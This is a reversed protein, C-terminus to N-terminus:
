HGQMKPSLSNKSLCGRRQRGQLLPLILDSRWDIFDTKFKKEKQSFLIRDESACFWQAMCEEILLFVGFKHFNYESGERYCWCEHFTWCKHFEKTQSKPIEEGGGAGGSLLREGRKPGTRPQLGLATSGLRGKHTVRSLQTPSPWGPWAEPAWSPRPLALSFRIQSSCPTFPMCGWLPPPARKM